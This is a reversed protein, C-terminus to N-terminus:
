TDNNTVRFTTQGQQQMGRATRTLDLQQALQRLSSDPSTLLNKRTTRLVSLLTDTWQSATIQEMGFRKGQDGDLRAEDTKVYDLIFLLRSEATSLQSNHRDAYPRRGNRDTGDINKKEMHARFHAEFPILLQNLETITFGTLKQLEEISNLHIDNDSSVELQEMTTTNEHSLGTSVEPSFTGETSPFSAIDSRMWFSDSSHTQGHELDVAVLSLGTPKNELSAASYTWFSDSSHAPRNELDVAV